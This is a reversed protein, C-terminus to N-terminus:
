KRQMRERVLAGAEKYTQPLRGMFANPQFVPQYQQLV